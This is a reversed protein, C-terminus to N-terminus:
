ESRSHKMTLLTGGNTSGFFSIVLEVFIFIANSFMLKSFSSFYISNKIVPLSINLDIIGPPSECIDITSKVYDGKAEDIGFRYKM